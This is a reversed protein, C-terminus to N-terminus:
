CARAPWAGSRRRASAGLLSLSDEKVGQERCRQRFECAQCHDNLILKPPEADRTRRLQRLLLEARGPRLAVRSNRCDKGHWVVGHSPALGQVSALLLGDLELLLRLERRVKEGGYFLVPVYHFAGLRSPGPVKQLGDLKLCFLDDEFLADLVFPPGSKLSDATL